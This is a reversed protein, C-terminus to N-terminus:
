WAGWGKGRTNTRIRCIYMDATMYLTGGDDGWACNSTKEGTRITGLHKGAASLVLIGGPGGCFVNGQYDV